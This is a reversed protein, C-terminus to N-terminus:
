IFFEDSQLIKLGEKGPNVRKVLDQYNKFRGTSREEVIKKALEKTLGADRFQQEIAYNIDVPLATFNLAFPGAAAARKEVRNNVHTWHGPDGEVTTVTLDFWSEFDGGQTLNGSPNRGGKILGATVAPRDVSLGVRGGINDADLVAGEDFAGAGYVFDGKLKVSLTLAPLTVKKEVYAKLMNTLYTICRISPMFVVACSFREDTHPTRAAPDIQDIYVVDGQLGIAFNMGVPFGIMLSLLCTKQTLVTAEMLTNFFITLYPITDGKRLTRIAKKLDDFTGAKDYYPVFTTLFDYLDYGDKKEHEWGIDLIKPLDPDLGIGDKGPTGSARKALCLIMEFLEPNSFVLPRTACGNIKGIEGDKLAITALVICLGNEPPTCPEDALASCIGQHTEEPKGEGLLAACLEPSPSDALAAPWDTRVEVCYSEMITSPATQEASNCDTVLVPVHDTQCERYSICIHVKYEGKTRDPDKVEECGKRTLVWPDVCAEAPVIIERGLSDIAVGPSVCLLGDKATVNLGCVVGAGLQLRNLLWRKRNFYSQEMRLHLEDLLKGYFYANRMPATLSRLTREDSHQSM